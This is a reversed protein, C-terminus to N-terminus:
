HGQRRRAREAADELFKKEEPTLSMPGERGIKDLIRDREDERWRLEEDTMVPDRHGPRRGRGGPGANGAALRRYRRLIEGRNLYVFGVLAGGIHAWRAVGGHPSQLALALELIGFVIVFTRAKIPVLFWLYIRRDPFTVAFAAMLGWVAGSAGIIPIRPDMGGAIFAAAMQLLGAGIGTIFYYKLFQRTGWWQELSTGFVWLAFMNFFVHGIGQLSHLFMYTGLQWVRGGPIVLEPTLGFMGVLAGQVQRPLLMMGLFIAVNILILNRVAPPM